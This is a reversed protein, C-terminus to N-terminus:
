VYVAGNEGVNKIGEWCIRCYVAKNPRPTFSLQTLRYCHDCEVEQSTPKQSESIISVTKKPNNKRETRCPGCRKPLQLERQIYFEVEGEGISFINKCEICQERIRKDTGNEKMIM